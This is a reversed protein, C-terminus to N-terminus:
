RHPLAPHQQITDALKKAINANFSGCLSMNSSFAVIAIRKIDREEEFISTSNEESSLFNILLESIKKQYPSFSEIVRQTKQLKVTSVMRMASTIQQTSKVSHIKTKIERLSGM